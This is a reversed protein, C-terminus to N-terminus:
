KLAGNNKKRLQNHFENLYDYRQKLKSNDEFVKKYGKSLTDPRINLSNAIDNNYKGHKLQYKLAILAEEKTFETKPTRNYSLSKFDFDYLMNTLKNLEEKNETKKAHCLNIYFIKFNCVAQEQNQEYFVLDTNIVEQMYSDLFSQLKKYLDNEDMELLNAMTSIKLRFELISHYIFSFIENEHKYLRKPNIKIDNLTKKIGSGLFKGTEDKLYGNLEQSKKGGRMRGNLKNEARKMQIKEYVNEGYLPGIVKPDTLRRQVTSSPIGTKKELEKDSLNEALFTNVLLRTQENIRDM